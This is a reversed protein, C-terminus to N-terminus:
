RPAPRGSAVCRTSRSISRRASSSPRSGASTRRSCSRRGLERVRRGGPERVVRAVVGLREVLRELHGVVRAELRAPRLGRRAAVVAADPERRPDLDAAERRRGHRLRDADAGAAPLRRDHAQVRGARDVTIVPEEGCPCPWSVDSTASRRSRARCGTRGPRPRGRRCRGTARVAEARVARARQRDAARRQM